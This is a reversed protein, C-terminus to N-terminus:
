ALLIKNNNQQSNIIVEFVYISQFQHQHQHQISHISHQTSLVCHLRPMYKKKRQKVLSVANSVFQSLWSCVNFQFIFYTYILLFFYRFFHLGLLLCCCSCCLRLIIFHSCPAVSDYQVDNVTMRRIKRNSKSIGNCFCIYKQITGKPTYTRAAHGKSISMNQNKSDDRKWM